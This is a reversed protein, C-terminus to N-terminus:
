RAQGETRQRLDAEVRDKLLAGRERIDVKGVFPFMVPVVLAAM